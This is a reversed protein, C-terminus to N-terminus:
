REHGQQKGRLFVARGVQRLVRSPSGQAMEWVTQARHLNDLLIAMCRVRPGYNAEYGWQLDERTVEVKEGVLKKLAVSPWVADRYYLDLTIRQQATVTKLWTDVDPSGDPKSKVM